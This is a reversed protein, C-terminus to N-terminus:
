VLYNAGRYIKSVFERSPLSVTSLNIYVQKTNFVHAIILKKHNNYNIEYVSPVVISYYDFDHVKGKIQHPHYNLNM